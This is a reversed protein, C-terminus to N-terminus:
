VSLKTETPTPKKFVFDLRFNQTWKIPETWKIPVDGKTQEYNSIIMLNKNGSKKNEYPRFSIISYKTKDNNSLKRDGNSM